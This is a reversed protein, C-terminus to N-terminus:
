KKSKNGGGKRPSPHKTGRMIQFTSALDVIYKGEKLQYIVPKRKFLNTLDIEFKGPETIRISELDLIVPKNKEVPGIIEEIDEEIEILQAESLKKIEEKIESQKFFFFYKSGCSCGTLIASSGDEYTAKCRVCQHPM